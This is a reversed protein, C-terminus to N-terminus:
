KRRKRAKKAQKNKKRRKAVKKSKKNTPSKHTSPSDFINFDSYNPEQRRTSRTPLQQKKVPPAVFIPLDDFLEPHNKVTAKYNDTSRFTQEFLQQEAKFYAETVSTPKPWVRHVFSLEWLTHIFGSHCALKTNEIIKLADEYVAENIIDMDKLFDYVFNAGWLTQVIDYKRHEFIFKMSSLFNDLTDYNLRFFYNADGEKELNKWWYNQWEQWILESLHFHFGLRHMYKQFALVLEYTYTKNKPSFTMEKEPHEYTDGLGDIIKKDFGAQFSYDYAEMEAKLKNLELDNSPLLSQQYYYQLRDSFIADSFETEPNGMYKENNDKIPEYAAKALTLAEQNLGRAWLQKHHKLLEDIDIAPNQVWFELVPQYKEAKDQYFHYNLIYSGIYKNEEQFLAPQQIRLAELFDIIKEYDKRKEYINGIVQLLTDGFGSKHNFDEPLPYKITEELFALQETENKSEFTNWWADLDKLLEEM